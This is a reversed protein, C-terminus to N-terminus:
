YGSVEFLAPQYAEPELLGMAARYCGGCLTWGEVLDCIGVQYDVEPDDPDGGLGGGCGDCTYRHPDLAQVDGSM